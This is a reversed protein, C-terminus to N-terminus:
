SPVAVLVDHHCQNEHCHHKKQSVVLGHVRGGGDGGPKHALLDLLGPRCPNQLRPCFVRLLRFKNRLYDAFALALAVM